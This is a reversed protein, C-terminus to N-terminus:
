SNGLQRIVFCHESVFFGSALSVSIILVVRSVRVTVASVKKELQIGSNSM